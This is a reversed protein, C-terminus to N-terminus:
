LVFIAETDTGFTKFVKIKHAQNVIEQVEKKFRQAMLEETPLLSENGLVEGNEDYKLVYCLMYEKILEWQEDTFDVVIEVAM